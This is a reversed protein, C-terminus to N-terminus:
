QQQGAQVAELQRQLAKVEALSSRLRKRLSSVTQRLDHERAAAAEQLEAAREKHRKLRTPALV